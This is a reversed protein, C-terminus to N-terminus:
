VLNRKKTAPNNHIRATGAIAPVPAPDSNTSDEDSDAAMCAEKRSVADALVPEHFVNPKQFCCGCRTAM